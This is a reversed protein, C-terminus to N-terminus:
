GHGGFLQDVNYCSSAPKKALVEQVNQQLLLLVDLLDSKKILKCIGAQLAEASTLSFLDRKVRNFQGAHTILPGLM